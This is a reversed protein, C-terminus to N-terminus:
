RGVKSVNPNECGDIHLPQAFTNGEQCIIQENNDFEGKGELGLEEVIRKRGENFLFKNLKKFGQCHKLAILRRGGAIYKIHRKSTGEELLFEEEYNVLGVDPQGWFLNFSTECDPKRSVPYRPFIEVGPREVRGTSYLTDQEAREESDLRKNIDVRRSFAVGMRCEEITSLGGATTGVQGSGDNPGFPTRHKNINNHFHIKYAELLGIKNNLHQIYTRQQRLEDMVEQRSQNLEDKIEDKIENHSQKLEGMNTGIDQLNNIKVAASKVRHEKQRLANSKPEKRNYDRRKTTTTKTTKPPDSWLRQRKSPFTESSEGQSHQNPQGYTSFTKLGGAVMYGSEGVPAFPNYVDLALTNSRETLPHTHSHTLTHILVSKHRPNACCQESEEVADLPIGNVYDFVDNDSM